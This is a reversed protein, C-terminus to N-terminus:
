KDWYGPKVEETKEQIYEVAENTFDARIDTTSDYDESASDKGYYDDGHFERMVENQIDDFCQAIFNRENFKDNWVKDNCSDKISQLYAASKTKMLELANM